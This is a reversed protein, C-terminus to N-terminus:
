EDGPNTSTIMNIKEHIRLPFENLLERTNPGKQLERIREADPDDSAEYQKYDIMNGHIARLNDLVLLYDSFPTEGDMEIRIKKQLRSSRSNMMNRSLFRDMGELDMSAGNVIYKYPGLVEINILSDSRSEPHIDCYECYDVEFGESSQTFAKITRGLLKIQEDNDSVQITAYFILYGADYLEAIIPLVDQIPMHQDVYVWVTQDGVARFKFDDSMFDVEKDNFLLFPTKSSGGLIIENQYMAPFESEGTFAEPSLEFSDTFQETKRKLYDTTTECDFHPVLRLTGSSAFFTLMGSEHIEYRTTWTIDVWPDVTVKKGNFSIKSFFCDEPDHCANGNIVLRNNRINWTQFENDTENWILHYHGNLTPEQCSILWLAMVFFGVTRKANTM